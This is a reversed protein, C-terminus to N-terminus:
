AIARGLLSTTLTEIPEVGREKGYAVVLFPVVGFCSEREKIRTGIASVALVVAVCLVLSSNERERERKILYHLFFKANSKRSLVCCFEQFSERLVGLQSCIIIRGDHGLFLEGRLMM